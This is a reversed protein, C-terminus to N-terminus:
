PAQRRQHRTRPGDETSASAMRKRTSSAQPATMDLCTDYCVMASSTPTAPAHTRTAREEGGTGAAVLHPTHPETSHHPTPKLLSRIVAVAANAAATAAAVAAQTAIQADRKSLTVHESMSKLTNEPVTRVIESLAADSAAQLSVYGFSPVPRSTSTQAATGLVKVRPVAALTRKARSGASLQGAIRAQSGGAGSPM